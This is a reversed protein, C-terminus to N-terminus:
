PEQHTCQYEIHLFDGSILITRSATKKEKCNVISVFCYRVYLSNVNIMSIQYVMANFDFFIRRHLWIEHWNGSQNQTSSMSTPLSSDLDDMSYIGGISIDDLLHHGM